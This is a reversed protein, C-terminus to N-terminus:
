IKCRLALVLIDDSQASSAGMWRNLTQSFFDIQDDINTLHWAETLMERFAKAGFKKNRGGSETADDLQSMFGDSFLYLTDKPKFHLTTLNFPADGYLTGGVPRRDASVEFCNGDSVMYSKRMAASFTVDNKGATIGCVAMEISDQIATGYFEQENQRLMLRIESDMEDLLHAPDVVGRDELLKHLASIGLISLFAGPVGHGTGDGVALITRNKRQGVWYFDGSVKDKPLYLVAVEFPEPINQRLHELTPVVAGQIRTAYNVSEELESTKEVLREELVVQADQLREYLNQIEQHQRELTEEQEKQRTIEFRVSVYKVPKGTELDLIPTITAVVWYYSGDKAKNKVEGSFVKGKSITKWMQVFIEDPQHGSKLIRHNRGILEERSYKAVRCFTDNAFTINGELDTESVIAANHLASLQGMLETKIRILEANDVSNNIGHPNSDAPTTKSGTPNSANPSSSESSKKRDYWGLFKIIDM